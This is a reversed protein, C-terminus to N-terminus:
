RATKDLEGPQWTSWMAMIILDAWTIRDLQRLTVMVYDWACVLVGLTHAASLM